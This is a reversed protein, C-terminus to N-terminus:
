FKDVIIWKTLGYRCVIGQFQIIDKGNWGTELYDYRKVETRDYHIYKDDVYLSYDCECAVYIPYSITEVVSMQVPIASISTALLGVFLVLNCIGGGGINFRVNQIVM